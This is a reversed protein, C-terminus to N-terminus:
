NMSYEGSMVSLARLLSGDVYTRAYKGSLGANTFVIHYWKKWESLVFNDVGENWNTGEGFRHHLYPRTGHSSDGQWISHIRGETQVEDM